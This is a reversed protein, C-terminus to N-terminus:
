IADLKFAYEAKTVLLTSQCALGCRALSSVGPCAAGGQIARQREVGEAEGTQIRRGRACAPVPRM